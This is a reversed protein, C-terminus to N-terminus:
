WMVDGGNPSISQGTLYGAEDSAMYVAAWAQDDPEGVRQMPLTSVKWKAWDPSGHGWMATQTPGPCLANVTIGHRAVEQAVSVTLAVVAAKSACYSANNPSPKHALQSATNIVRGYGRSIMHPLAFHMGYWVGRLNIDMTRVYQAVPEEWIPGVFDGSVGANNVLIDIRGFTAITAAVAAEVEAAVTVDVALDLAERGASRIAAVAEARAPEKGPSGVAVDAGEEAFRTCIARGIGTSGGIVLAKKCQLRHM